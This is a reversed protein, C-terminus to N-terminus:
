AFSLFNLPTSAHLMPLLSVHASYIPLFYTTHPESFRTRHANHGEPLLFIECIKSLLPLHGTPSCIECGWSDAGHPIHPSTGIFSGPLTSVRAQVTDHQLGCDVKQCPNKLPSSTRAINKPKLGFSIFVSYFSPEGLNICMSFNQFARKFNTNPWSTCSIM